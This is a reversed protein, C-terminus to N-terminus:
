DEKVNLLEKIDMTAPIIESRTLTTAANASEVIVLGEGSMEGTSMGICLYDDDLMFRVESGKPYRAPLSQEKLVVSDKWNFDIPKYFGVDRYGNDGGFCGIREEVCKDPYVCTTGDEDIAAAEAGFKKMLMPAEVEIWEKETIEYPKM